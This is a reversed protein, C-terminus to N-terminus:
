YLETLLSVDKGCQPCTNDSYAMTSGEAIQVCTSCELSALTLPGSVFNVNQTFYVM